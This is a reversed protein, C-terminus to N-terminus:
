IDNTELEEVAPCPPAGGRPRAEGRPRGTESFSELFLKYSHFNCTNGVM